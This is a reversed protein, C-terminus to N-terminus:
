RAGTATRVHLVERVRLGRGDSEFDLYSCQHDRSLQTQLTHLDPLVILTLFM